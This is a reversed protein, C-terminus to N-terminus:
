IQNDQTTLLLVAEDINGNAKRLADEITQDPVNKLDYLYKTIEVLSVLQAESTRKAKPGNKKSFFNMVSDFANGMSNGVSEM